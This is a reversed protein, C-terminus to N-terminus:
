LTTEEDEIGENENDYPLDENISNVGFSEPQEGSDDDSFRNAPEALVIVRLVHSAKSLSGKRISFFTM